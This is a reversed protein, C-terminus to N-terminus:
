KLLEKHGTVNSYLDDANEQSQAPACVVKGTSSAAYLSSQHEFYAFVIADFEGFVKGDKTKIM